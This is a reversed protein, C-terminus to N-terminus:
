VPLDLEEVLRQALDKGPGTKGREIKAITSRAKGMCAALATQDLGREERRSRIMDGTGKADIRSLWRLREGPPGFLDAQADDHGRRQGKRNRKRQQVPRPEASERWRRRDAVGRPSPTRTINHGTESGTRKFDNALRYLSADGPFAGGKHECVLFGKEVLVSRARAYRKPDRWGPIVEHAAMAKDALAFPETRGAHFHLLHGLLVLANGSTALEAIVTVPLQVVATRRAAWNRGEIEYKWASAATKRIERDPFAQDPAIEFNDAAITRAVDILDDLTDCHPAQQLCARFLMDNRYGVSVSRLPVPDSGPDPGNRGANGGLAGPRIPPLDKLDDWSGAAFEYAKGQHAGSPRVSPPVVVFGGEAKIDVPLGETQRLNRSREGSSRYWLHAGGGPTRTILPTDGFRELMTRLLTPDDIDVVLVNSPGTYVGINATPYRAELDELGKVSLPRGPAKGGFLAAKGDDGIAPGVVLDHSTLEFAAREFPRVTRKALWDPLRDADVQNPPVKRACV